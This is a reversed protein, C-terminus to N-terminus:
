LRKMHKPAYEPKPPTVPFGIAEATPAYECMAKVARSRQEDTTTISGSDSLGNTATWLMVAEVRDARRGDGRWYIFVKGFGMGGRNEIYVEQEESYHDHATSTDIGTM